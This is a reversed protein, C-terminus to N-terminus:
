NERSELLAVGLTWNIHTGDINDAINFQDKSQIGFHYGQRLLVNYYATNFCYSYMYQDNPYLNQLVSWNTQCFDKGRSILKSLTMTGDNFDFPKATATYYFGSIAYFQNANPFLSLHVHHVEEILPTIRQVCADYDGDGLLNNPLAYGVPFCNANNTYKYEHRCIM